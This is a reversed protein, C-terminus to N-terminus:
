IEVSYINIYWKDIISFLLSGYDEGRNPFGNNLAQYNDRSDAIGGNLTSM